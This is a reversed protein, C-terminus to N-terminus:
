LTGCATLVFATGNFDFRAWSGNGTSPLNKLVTSTAGSDVVDYSGGIANQRVLHFYDGRVATSSDLTIKRPTSTAALLHQMPQDIGPTLTFPADGGASSPGKPTILNQPRSFGSVPTAGAVPAEVETFEGDLVINVVSGADAVYVDLQKAGTASLAKSFRVKTVPGPNSTWRGLASEVREIDLPENGEMGFVVESMYDRGNPAHGYLGISGALTSKAVTPKIETAVTYWDATAAIFRISTRRINESRHTLRYVDEDRAGGGLARLVDSRRQGLQFAHWRPQFGNTVPASTGLQVTGWKATAMVQRFLPDGYHKTVLGSPHWVWVEDLMATAGVYYQLGALRRAGDLPLQRIGFPSGRVTETTGSFPVLSGGGTMTVKPTTAFPTFEVHILGGTIDTKGNGNLMMIAEPGFNGGTGKQTFSLAGWVEAILNAHQLGFYTNDTTILGNRDISATGGSQHVVELTHGSQTARGNAITTGDPEDFTIYPYNEARSVILENATGVAGQGGTEGRIGSASVNVFIAEGGVPVIVADSM